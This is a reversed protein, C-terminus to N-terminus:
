IGLLNLAKLRKKDGAMEIPLFKVAIYHKESNGKRYATYVQSMGGQGILTDLVHTEGGIQIETGKEM